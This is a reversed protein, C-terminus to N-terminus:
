RGWVLPLDRGLVASSQAIAGDRQIAMTLRRLDQEHVIYLAVSWANADTPEAAPPRIVAAFRERTREQAARQRADPEPVFKLDEVSRVLYELQRRSRTTEFVLEAYAVAREATDLRLGEARALAVVKEPADTLVYAAQGDGGWGVYLRQPHRGEYTVRYIRHEGFLRQPYELVETRDALILGASDEDQDVLAAALNEREAESAM